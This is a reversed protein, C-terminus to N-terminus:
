DVLDTTDEYVLLVEKELFLETVVVELAVVLVEPRLFKLCQPFLHHIM